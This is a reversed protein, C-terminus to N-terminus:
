CKNTSSKSEFQNDFFDEFYNEKTDDFIFKNKLRIIVAALALVLASLCLVINRNNNYHNIPKMIKISSLDDNVLDINVSENVDYDFRCSKINIKQSDKDILKGDIYHSGKNLKGKFSCDNIEFNNGRRESYYYISNTSGKEDEFSCGSISLSNTIEDLKRLSSDLSEDFVNYIKVSGGPGRGREFSSETINLNRVSFFISSGGYLYDNNTPKKKLAENLKFTCNKVFM